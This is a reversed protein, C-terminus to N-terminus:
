PKDGEQTVEKKIVFNIETYGPDPLEQLQKEIIKKLGEAMKRHSPSDFESKVRATKTGLDIEAWFHGHPPIGLPHTKIFEEVYECIKDLQEQDMSYATNTTVNNETKSM